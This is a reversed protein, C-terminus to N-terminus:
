RRHLYEKIFVDFADSEYGYYRQEFTEMYTIVYDEIDERSFLNLHEVTKMGLILNGVCEELMDLAEERKSYDATFLGKSKLKKSIM